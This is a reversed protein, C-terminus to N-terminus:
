RELRSGGRSARTAALDVKIQVVDASLLDMKSEMRAMTATAQLAAQSPGALAQTLERRRDDTVQLAVKDTYERSAALAVNVRASVVNEVDPSSRVVGAAGVAGSGLGLFACVAMFMINRPAQVAIIDQQADSMPVVPPEAAIQLAPQTDSHSPARPPSM